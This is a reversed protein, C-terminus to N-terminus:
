QVFLVMMGIAFMWCYVSFYWLPVRSIWTVFGAVCVYGVVGSVLLALLMWGWDFGSLMASLSAHKGMALLKLTEYVMAALFTPISLLFTFRAAQSKTFGQLLGISMTTGSRSFGHFIAAWAQALGVAYVAKYPLIGLQHYWAGELRPQCTGCSQRQYHREAYAMLCGVLILHVAVWLPQHLFWDSLDEIKGPVTWHMWQFVWKSLKLTGLIGGASVIFATLIARLQQQALRRVQLVEVPEEERQPLVAFTWFGALEKRFYVCVAILTGLHLWIDFFAEEQLNLTGQVMGLHHLIHDTFLLHATSSVPLFETLGQLVAKIMMTAPHFM